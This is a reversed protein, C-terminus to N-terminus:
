GGAVGSAQADRPMAPGLCEELSVDGSVLAEKRSRDLQKVRYEIRTANGRDGLSQRFVLQLPGRGRLYKAGRGGKEHERLRKEVDIAIGTYLSGDGCRIIYLNYDQDSM